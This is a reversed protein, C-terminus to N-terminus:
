CADAEDFAPAQISRHPLGMRHEQAVFRGTLAQQKGAIHNACRTFRLAVRVSEEDMLEKIVDPNFRTYLHSGFVAAAVDFGSGIKGQALCHVFQALNHALRRDQGSHEAITDRTIVGFHLLLATM